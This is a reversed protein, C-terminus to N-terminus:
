FCSSGVEFKVSINSLFLIYVLNHFSRPVPTITLKNQTPTKTHNPKPPTARLNTQITLTITLKTESPYQHSRLKKTQEDIQEDNKHKNKLTYQRSRMNKQHSTM